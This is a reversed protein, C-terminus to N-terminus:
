FTIVCCCVFRILDVDSIHNTWLLSFLLFHKNKPIPNVKKQCNDMDYDYIITPQVFSSYSFRLRNTNFYRTALTDSSLVCVCVCVCVCVFYVYLVYTCLVNTRINEKRFWIVTLSINHLFLSLSRINYTNHTQLFSVTRIKLKEPGFGMFHSLSTSTICRQVFIWHLQLTLSHIVNSFTTLLSISHNSLYSILYSFSCGGDSLDQIRIRQVGGEWEWVVFHHRFVEILEIFVDERHPLVEEWLERNKPDSVPAKIVKFNYAGGTFSYTRSLSLSLVMWDILDLCELLFLNLLFKSSLPSRRKNQHVVLERPEFCHITSRTTSGFDLNLFVLFEFWMFNIDNSVM